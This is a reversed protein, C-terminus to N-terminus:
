EGSSIISLTSNIDGVLNDVYLKNVADNNQTPTDVGRLIVPVSEVTPSDIKYLIVLGDKIELMTGQDFPAYAPLGSYHGVLRIDNPSSLVSQGGISLAGEFDGSDSNTACINLGNAVSGWQAGGQGEEVDMFKDQKNFIDNKTSMYTASVNASVIEGSSNLTATYYFYMYRLLEDSSVAGLLPTAAGNNVQLGILHKPSDTDDDVILHNIAFLTGQPLTSTFDINGSNSKYYLSIPQSARYLSFGTPLDPSLVLETVDIINLGGSSPDFEEEIFKMSPYLDSKTFGLNIRELMQENNDIKNRSNEIYKVYDNFISAM